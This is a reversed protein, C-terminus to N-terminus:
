AAVVRMKFSASSKIHNLNYNSVSPMSSALGVSHGANEVIRLDSNSIKDHLYQAYKIPTMIDDKGVIILTPIAIEQVRDMIDFENCLEFDRKIITPSCKRIEIRSAEIMKPNTGEHILAQLKTSAESRTLHEEILEWGTTCFEEIRYLKEETM